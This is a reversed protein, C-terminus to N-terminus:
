DAPRISLPPRTGSLPAPAFGNAPATSKQEAGFNASLYDLFLERRAGSLAPMNQEETMWTLLEDWGHRSLGQQKVLALSHCGSCLAGVLMRGEGEPWDPGFPDPNDQASALCSAALLVAGAIKVLM